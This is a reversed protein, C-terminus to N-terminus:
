RCDKGLGDMSFRRGDLINNVKSVNDKEEMGIGYPAGYRYRISTCMDRVAGINYVCSVFDRETRFTQLHNFIPGSQM